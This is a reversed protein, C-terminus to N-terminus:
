AAWNKPARLTQSLIRVHGRDVVAEVVVAVEVAAIGELLVASGREGFPTLRLEGGVHGAPDFDSGAPAGELREHDLREALGAVEDRGILQAGCAADHGGALWAARFAANRTGGGGMHWCMCLSM